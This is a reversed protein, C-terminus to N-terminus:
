VLKQSNPGRSGDLILRMSAIEVKPVGCDTGIPVRGDITVCDKTRVIKHNAAVFRKATFILKAKHAGKSATFEATGEPNIVDRKDSQAAMNGAGILFFLAFITRM